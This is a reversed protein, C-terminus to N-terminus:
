LAELFLLIEELHEAFQICSYQWKGEPFCREPEKKPVMEPVRAFPDQPDITSCESFVSTTDSKQVHSCLFFPIM